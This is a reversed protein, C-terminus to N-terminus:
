PFVEIHENYFQKIFVAGNFTSYIAPPPVHFKVFPPLLLCILAEDIKANFEIGNKETLNWAM